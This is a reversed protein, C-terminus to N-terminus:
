SLEANQIPEENPVDPEVPEIEIASKTVKEKPVVQIKDCKAQINQLFKDKAKTIINHIKKQMKRLQNEDGKMFKRLEVGVAMNFDGFSPFSKELYNSLRTIFVPDLSATFEAEEKLMKNVLDIFRMSDDFYYDPFRM